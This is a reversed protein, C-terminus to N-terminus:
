SILKSFSEPLPSEFRMPAKTIPHKFALLRAHLCLRKLPNSVAGYKKDGVIPHGAEKCHVRIQNKRGTELKLTLASYNRTSKEVNYHTIAKKGQEDDLSSHVVYQEDEFLYSQWTGKKSKLQGEVIAYYSREIDHVEFLKKLGEYAPESLAFMMVGSTDQDLRHVVHVKQPKYHEKLYSFATEGKEFATSVSLLGNPKEIVVIHRDEYYVNIGGKIHKLRQGLAIEDGEKVLCQNNKVVQGNLYVRSEKVWSKITTKSSQPSLEFLFDILQGDKNAIIKM